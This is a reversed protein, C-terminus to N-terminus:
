FSIKEELQTFYDGFRIPQEAPNAIQKLWLQQYQQSLPIQQYQMISWNESPKYAKIATQCSDSQQWGIPPAVGNAIFLNPAVFGKQQCLWAQKTAPLVYEDEFGSFHMLEHLFLGYHSASNLHMIGGSVNGLGSRTMMVIFDFGTPWVKNNVLPRWDCRAAHEPHQQCNISDGLYIPKSFCFSGARPQPEIQYRTKFINLQALGQRHDTMMLVNFECHSQAQQQAFSLLFGEHSAFRQDISAPAASYQLKLQEAADSEPLLQLQSLATLDDWRELKLLLASLKRRKDANQQAASARWFPLASQGKGNKLLRLAWVFQADAEGSLALLYLTPDPLSSLLSKFDDAFRYYNIFISTPTHKVHWFALAHHQNVSSPLGGLSLIVVVSILWKVLTIM